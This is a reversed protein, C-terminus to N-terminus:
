GAARSGRRCSQTSMVAINPTGAYGKREAEDSLVEYASSAKAPAVLVRLYTTPPSEDLRSNLGQGAQLCGGGFERPRAQASSRLFPRLFGRSM